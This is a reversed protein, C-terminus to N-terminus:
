RQEQDRDAQRRGTRGLDPINIRGRVAIQVQTGAGAGAIVDHEIGAKVLILGHHVRWLLGNGAKIAGIHRTGFYEAWFATIITSQLGMSFGGSFGLYSKVDLKQSPAYVTEGFESYYFSQQFRTFEGSAKYTSLHASATPGIFFSTQAQTINLSIFSFSFLVLANIISTKM